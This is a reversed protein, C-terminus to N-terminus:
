IVGAVQILYKTSSYFLLMSSFITNCFLFNSSIFSLIGGGFISFFCGALGAGMLSSLESSLESSNAYCDGYYSSVEESEESESQDQTNDKRQEM